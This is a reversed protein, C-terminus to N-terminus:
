SRIQELTEERFFDEILGLRQQLASLRNFGDLFEDTLEINAAYKHEYMFKRLLSKPDTFINIKITEILIDVYSCALIPLFCTFYFTLSTFLREFTFHHRVHYFVSDDYLGDASAIYAVYGVLSFFYM